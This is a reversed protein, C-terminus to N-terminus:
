LEGYSIALLKGVAALTACVQERESRLKFMESASQRIEETLKRQNERLSVIEAQRAKLTDELQVKTM